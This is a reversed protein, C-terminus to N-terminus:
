PDSRSKLFELTSRATKEWSFSRAYRLGERAYERRLPESALLKQIGGAIEDTRGPSVQLATEGAIEGLATTASTLVPVECAMAELVPLGFGEFLSPYVFLRAGSYLAPLDGYDVYGTFTVSEDIERDLRFAFKDSGAGAIVLQFEERVGAPLRYWAELLRNINKRPDLSGVTVLYDRGIGLRRRVGRIEEEGRRHFHGTNVGNYIVEIKDETFPYREVITRRSYESITIVGRVRRLLPPLILSRWAVYRRSFWEPHIQDALDHLTLVQRSCWVPGTNTPSWLLTGERVRGPMFLQMWLQRLSDSALGDPPDVWRFPQEMRRFERVVELAYRQVGTVPQKKFHGNIALM